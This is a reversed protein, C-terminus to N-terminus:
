YIFPEGDRRKGFDLNFLAAKGVIVRCEIYSFEISPQGRSRCWFRSKV